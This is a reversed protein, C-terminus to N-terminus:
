PDCNQFGFVGPFIGWKKNEFTALREGAAFCLTKVMVNTSDVNGIPSSWFKFCKQSGDSSPPAFCEGIRPAMCVPLVDLRLCTSVVVTLCAFSGRQHCLCVCVYVHVTLMIVLIFAVLVCVRGAFMFCFFLMVFEFVIRSLLCVVLPFGM